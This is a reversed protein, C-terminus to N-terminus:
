DWGLQWLRHDLLRGPDLRTMRGDVFVLPRRQGGHDTIDLVEGLVLDHDGARLVDHRRCHVALVASDIVPTGYGSTSWQLQDFREEMPKRFAQPTTADGEDLLSCTWTDLAKVHVLSTSRHDGLFGVLLPTISVSTFSGVLMGIPRGERMGAVVAVSTPLRKMAVRFDHGTISTTQTEGPPHANARM